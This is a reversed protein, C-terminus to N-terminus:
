FGEAEVVPETGDVVVIADEPRWHWGREEVAELTRLRECTGESETLNHTPDEPRNIWAVEPLRPPLPRQRFREPHAAFAADLVEQRRARVLGARGSHVDAPTHLGIGSHRHEHNYHGFFGDVFSRAAAINAFRRPFSPFYKLTKFQAESFPNDNSQHPRSHSQLVGLDALLQTVTKSTMSSGRDAHITLQGQGIEHRFVADAILEEALRASERPAVLWGVAYRSFVDLIVYLQFWTWRYPGALRTIDWSWVQNPGTAVLEPKVHAPRRAVRRRERVQHRARLIRYMTAISALYTGEDLLTAWVQAPAQDCFRESNLVEVVGDAEATTLARAPRPRPRPPGQLPPRRRRYHTARSRGLVECARKRGVGRAVLEEVGADLVAHM